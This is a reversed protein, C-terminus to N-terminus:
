PPPPFMLLPQMTRLMDLKTWEEVIKDGVIRFISIGTTNLRKGTLAIGMFKGKHTSNGTWCATVKDGESTLEDITVCLDPFATFQAAVAKKYGDRDSPMGPAAWNFIFNTAM